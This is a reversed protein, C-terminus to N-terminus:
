SGAPRQWRTRRGRWTCIRRKDELYVHSPQMDSLAETEVRGNGNQKNRRKFCLWQSFSFLKARDESDREVLLTSLSGFHWRLSGGKSTRVYFEVLKNKDKKEICTNRGTGADKWDQGHTHIPLSCMMIIRTHVTPIVFYYKKKKCTPVKGDSM